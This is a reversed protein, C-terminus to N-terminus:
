EVKARKIKSTAVSQRMLSTWYANESDAPTASKLAPNANVASARGSRDYGTEGVRFKGPDYATMAPDDFPNKPPALLGKQDAAQKKDGGIINGIVKSAIPALISLFFGM